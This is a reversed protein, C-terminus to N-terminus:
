IGQNSQPNEERIGPENYDLPIGCIYTATDYPRALVRRTEFLFAQRVSGQQTAVPQSYFSVAKRLASNRNVYKLILIQYTSRSVFQHFDAAEQRNWEM